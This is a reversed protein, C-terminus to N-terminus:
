NHTGTLRSGQTSSVPSSESLPTAAKPKVASENVPEPDLPSSPASFSDEPPAPPRWSPMVTSDVFNSEELASALRTTSVADAFERPTGVVGATKNVPNYGARDLFGFTVDKVEKLDQSKMALSFCEDMLDSAMMEMRTRIDLVRTASGPMLALMIKRGYPHKLTIHVTMHGLSLMQAIENQKFGAVRLMVIQIHISNFKQAENSKLERGYPESGDMCRAILEQVEPALSSEEVSESTIFEGQAVATERRIEHKTLLREPEVIQTEQVLREEM